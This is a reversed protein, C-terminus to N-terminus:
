KSLMNAKEEVEAEVDNGNGRCPKGLATGSNATREDLEKEAALYPKEDRKPQVKSAEIYLHVAFVVVFVGCWMTLSSKLGFFWTSIIILLVATVDSAFCKVVADAYKYVATIVLGIMANACVVGVAFVNDYGEFFGMVRDTNPNPMLFFAGLNLWVGGAYLVANQVNLGIKYNKVLHENRAASIATITTSLGMLLYTYLPYHGAGKCPNYQVIIMGCAQLMMAKWQDNTFTKGAFTCQVIAVIMTSASKFLFITGPDALIYVYFSLQNNVAYLFSLLFIQALAGQNVQDMASAWAAPIHAGSVRSGGAQDYVHFSCSMCLKIFEAICVASTTSYHFGGTASQSAKYLIGVTTSVCVLGAGALLKTRLEGDLM